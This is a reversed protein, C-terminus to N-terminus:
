SPASRRRSSARCAWRRSCSTTRRRNASCRTTRRSQGARRHVLQGERSLSVPGAAAKLDDNTKLPQGTGLYDEYDNKIYGFAAIGVIRHHDAGFSTRAFAAAITSHTSTYQYTVGFMSVRSDPDFKHLYAGLGGFSTGLKPNSSVLPVLLWPSSWDGAPTPEGDRREATANSERTDDPAAVKTGQALALRPSLCLALTLATGARLLSIRIM